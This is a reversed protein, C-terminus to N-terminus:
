GYLRKLYIKDNNREVEIIESLVDNNNINSINKGAVDDIKGFATLSNKINNLLKEDIILIDEIQINCDYFELKLNIINQKSDLLMYNFDEIKVVKLLVRM